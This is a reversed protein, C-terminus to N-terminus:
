KIGDSPEIKKLTELIIWLNSGKLITGWESVISLESKEQIAVIKGRFDLMYGKIAHVKNNLLDFEELLSIRFRPDRSYPSEILAYGYNGETRLSDLDVYFGNGFDYLNRALTCCQMCLLIGFVLLFRKM